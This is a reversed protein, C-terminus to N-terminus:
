SNLEQWRMSSHIRCNTGSLPLNQFRCLFDFSVRQFSLFSVSLTKEDVSMVNCPTRVKVFSGFKYSSILYETTQLQVLIGENTRASLPLCLKVVITWPVQFQGRQSEVHLLPADNQLTRQPGGPQRTTVSSQRNHIQVHALFYTQDHLLWGLVFWKAVGFCVM